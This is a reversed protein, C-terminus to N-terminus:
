AAITIASLQGLAGQRRRAKPLDEPRVSRNAALTM